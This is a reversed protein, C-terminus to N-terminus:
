FIPKLGRYKFILKQEHRREEIKKEILSLANKESLGHEVESFKIAIPENFPLEQVPYELTPLRMSEELILEWLYDMFTEHRINLAKLFRELEMEMWEGESFFKVSQVLQSLQKPSENLNVGYSSNPLLETSLYITISAQNYKFSHSRFKKRVGFLLIKDGYRSALELEGEEWKWQDWFGKAEKKTVGFGGCVIKYFTNETVSYGDMIVRKLHVNTVGTKEELETWRYPRKKKPHQTKKYLGQLYKAQSSLIKGM